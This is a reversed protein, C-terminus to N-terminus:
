HRTCVFNRIWSCTLSVSDLKQNTERLCLDRFSPLFIFWMFSIIKQSKDLAGYLSDVLYSHIDPYLIPYQM